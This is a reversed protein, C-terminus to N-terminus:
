NVAGALAWTMPQLQPIPKPQWYVIGAIEPLSMVLSLRENAEAPTLDTWPEANWYASLWVLAPIGPYYKRAIEAQARLSPEIWARDIPRLQYGHIPVTGCAEYVPAMSRAYADIQAAQEATPNVFQKTIMGPPMGLAGSYISVPTGGAFARLAKVTRAIEQPSRFAVGLYELDLCILDHGAMKGAWEEIVRLSDPRYAHGQADDPTATSDHLNWADWWAIKSGPLKQNTVYLDM